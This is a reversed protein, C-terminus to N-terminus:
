TFSHRWPNAGMVRAARSLTDGRQQLASVIATMVFPIALVSHALVIGAISGYLGARSFLLLIGLALAIVPIMQPGLFLWKLRNGWASAECTLVLSAAVGVTTSLLASLAAIILSRYTAGLWGTSNFFGQYWRL